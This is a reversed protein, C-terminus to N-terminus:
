QYFSHDAITTVYNKNKSAWCPVGAQNFYLSGGAERAGDLVLKAAFVCEESPERNISGTMAPTFQNPAFIVDRVTNPFKASEVRNMIVTGVAIKGKLPQNGSEAFMIRSLWRLDEANYYSSGSQLPTGTTHISIDGTMVDWQTSAGMAYGILCIPAMTSDKYLIVNSPVYIYRDNIVFYPNGPRATMSFGDGSAVLQGNQWEVQVNKELSELITRISIYTTDNIVTTVNLPAISVGNIKLEASKSEEAVAETQTTAEAYAAKVGYSSVTRFAADLPQSVSITKGLPEGGHNGKPDDTYYAFVNLCLVGLLVFGVLAGLLRKQM